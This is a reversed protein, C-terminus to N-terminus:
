KQLFTYYVVVAFWYFLNEVLFSKYLVQEFYVLFVIRTNQSYILYNYIALM